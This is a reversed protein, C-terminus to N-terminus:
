KLREEAQKRETIDIGISLIGSIKGTEDKLVTNRWSILRESGDNCIIPNEYSSVGPMEKLVDQFVKPIVAGNRKPIFLDFWNKGLVDKKKFGTLEEAFKNFLTINANTDLVVIFTNATELLNESFEKEIKLSNESVILQQNAARLQQETAILQQNSAELQQNAARLQQNIAQLAEQSKNTNSM